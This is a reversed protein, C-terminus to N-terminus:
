GRVTELEEAMDILRVLERAGKSDVVGLRPQAKKGVSKGLRDRSFVTRVPVSCGANGGNSGAGDSAQVLLHLAGKKMVKEISERGVVIKKAKMLVGLFSYVKRELTDKIRTELQALESPDVNCRLARALTRGKAAKGICLERCCVYAGRGPLRGKLDPVLSGDPAVVIRVLSGKKKVERCGVCTRHPSPRTKSAFAETLSEKL